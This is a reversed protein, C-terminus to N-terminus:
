NLILYSVNYTGVASANIRFSTGPIINTVWFTANLNGTVLIASNVTVLGNGVIVFNAAVILAIASANAAISGKIVVNTMLVTNNVNNMTLNSSGIIVSNCSAGSIINGSGGIISLNRGSASIESACSSIISSQLLPSGTLCSGQSALLASTQIPSNSSITNNYSSIISNLNNGYISSGASSLITNNCGFTDSTNSSIISNYSGGTFLGCCNNVNKSSLISNYSGDTTSGVSTIINNNNGAITSTDTGVVLGASSSSDTLSNNSVILSRGSTLKFSSVSTIGSGNGYAIERLPIPTSVSPASGNIL